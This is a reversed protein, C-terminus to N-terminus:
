SELFDLLKDTWWSILTDSEWPQSEPHGFFNDAVCESFSFDNDFMGFQKTLAYISWDFRETFFKQCKSYYKKMFRADGVIQVSQPKTAAISCSVLTVAYSSLGANVIVNSVLRSAVNLMLDSAHFPKVLGGGGLLKNSWLPGASPNSVSLKRSTMSCDSINGHVVFRGTGNITWKCNDAIPINHRAIVLEAESQAVERVKEIDTQSSHAVAITVAEVAIPTFGDEAVRVTVVVKNDPGLVVGYNERVEANLITNRSLEHLDNSIAMALLHPIGLRTPNTNEASSMAIGQDNYGSDGGKDTTGLAIDPSQAEIENIIYLNSPLCVESKKWFDRMEAYYGARRFAKVLIARLYPVTFNITSKAEGGFVVTDHTLFVEIAAHSAFQDKHQIDDIVYSAILDCLRDPHGLSVAESSSLYTQKKPKLFNFM